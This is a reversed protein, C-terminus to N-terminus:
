WWRSWRLRRRGQGVAPEVGQRLHARAALHHAGTISTTSMAPSTGPDDVPSPRPLRKRAPMRSTSARHRTRRAKASEPRAPRSPGRRTAPRARARAPAPRRPCSRPGSRCAGCLPGHRCSGPLRPRPWPPRRRTATRRCATQVAGGEVGLLAGPEAAHEEEGVLGHQRHHVDTLVLELLGIREGGRDAAASSPWPSTSATHTWSSASVAWSAASSRASSRAPEAQAFTRQRADGVPGIPQEAPADKESGPVLLRPRPTEPGPGVGCLARPDDVGIQLPPEDPGLDDM